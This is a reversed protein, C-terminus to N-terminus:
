STLCQSPARAATAIFTTRRARLWAFGALAVSLSLGVAVPLPSEIDVGLVKENESAEDHAQGATVDHGTAEAAEDHGGAKSTGEGTIAAPEDHHESREVAAGVAFMGAGLLLLVAVLRGLSRSSTM